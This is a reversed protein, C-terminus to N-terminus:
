ISCGTSFGCYSCLVCRSIIKMEHGCVPCAELYIEPHTKKIKVTSEGNMNSQGNVEREGLAHGKRKSEVELEKEIESKIESKSKSKRIIENLPQSNKSGNRYISVSKIGLEWARRYISGIDEPTVSESLNITKSIAGSVFPQLAAVMKLHGDPSIQFRSDSSDQATQFIRYHEEKLLSGSLHSNKQLYLNIKSMQEEPYGLSELGRELSESMWLVESGETMKKVKMLSYEPEIGTTECDMMLGITGTPALATLQANRLGWRDVLQIAETWIQQAIKLLRSLEPIEEPNIKEFGFNEQFFGQKLAQDGQKVM